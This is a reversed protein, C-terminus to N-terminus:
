AGANGEPPEGLLSERLLASQLEGRLGSIEERRREGLEALDTLLDERTKLMGQLMASQQELASNRDRLEANERELRDAKAALKEKHM